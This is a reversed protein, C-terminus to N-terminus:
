GKLWPTECFLAVPSLTWREDLSLNARWTNYTGDLDLVVVTYCQWSHHFLEAVIYDPYAYSIALELDYPVEITM